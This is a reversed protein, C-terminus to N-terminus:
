DQVARANIDVNTQLTEGELSPFTAGCVIDNIKWLTTKYVFGTPKTHGVIGQNFWPQLIDDKFTEQFKKVNTDTIIGFTGTVPNATGGFMDKFINLFLQLKMVEMPDNEAGMQMYDVLFPCTDTSAGLVLPAPAPTALRTRTGSSGSSRRTPTSTEEIIEDEQNLFDCEYDAIYIESVRTTQQLDDYVYPTTDFFCQAGSQDTNVADGNQFIATQTWGSRDEETISWEGAPLNFEYYGTEDTIAYVPVYEDEIETATITWGGLGEEGEDLVGNGNLDNYKFGSITETEPEPEATNLLTFTRTARLNPAPADERPNVVLCYDGNAWTSMDVTTEFLGTTPNFSSPNNPTPSAPANGVVDTGNCSGARIAWFVEDVDDDADQYDALFQFTGSLELGNTAPNTIELSGEFAPETTVECAVPSEIDLRYLVGAPNSRDNSGDVGKNNVKITFTNEGDVLLSLIDYEKLALDAYNNLDSRDIVETGNVTFIYGNDAAIEIVASVAGNVTFTESFTYTEDEEPNEVRDTAWVWTADDINDTWNNHVYTEVAFENTEVVLTQTDSFISCTQPPLEKPVNWAVCHYTEGDKPSDIRDYNDYNLGDKHCYLEASDKDNNNAGGVFPIYDAPLVERMWFSKSNVAALPVNTSGVFTTWDSGASGVFDDGPNATSSDAWEFEWDPVIRCTTDKGQEALWDAATNATVTPISGSWDPLEEEYDCVIKTTNITVSPVSAITNLMALTRTKGKQVNIVGDTDDDDNQSGDITFEAFDALEDPTETFFDHYLPTAWIANGAVVVEETYKYQGTKDLEVVECYADLDTGNDNVLDTNAVLPTTFTFTEDYGGPGTVDVSFEGATGAGNSINGQEDVIMKCVRMMAKPEEVLCLQADDLYTGFSNSPGLDAFAIDASNSDAKFTIASRTWDTTLLGEPDTQPGETAVSTGNVLIDMQNQTDGGANHRGAFAWSLEYTAGTQLGAVSQTVKTSHDGDLEAYQNGEAAENGFLDEQLELTTLTNDSMKTVTWGPVTGFKQWKSSNTVEPEEFSGNTLLNQDIDLCQSVPVPKPCRDKNSAKRPSYDTGDFSYNLITTGDSTVETTDFFTYDAGDTAGAFKIVGQGAAAVEVTGTDATGVVEYTATIPFPNTNRVRFRMSDDSATCIATLQLPEFEAETKLFYTRAVKGQPAVLATEVSLAAVEPIDFVDYQDDIDNVTIMPGANINDTFIHPVPAVEGHESTNSINLVSPTTVGSGPAVNIGHWINGETSFDSADVTSGNVVMGSRFNKSTVNEVTIGESEYVNLGHLGLRWRDGEDVSSGAGIASAVSSPITTVDISAQLAFALAGDLTIDKVTVNNTGIIGIAANNDNSTKYFEANVAYGNGDLTIEKTINIQAGITEDASMVIVDGNDTDADDIAEQVTPFTEGTDINEVPGAPVVPTYDIASSQGVGKIEGETSSTWTVTHVVDNNEDRLTMTDGADNWVTNGGADIQADCAAPVTNDGCIVYNETTLLSVGPAITHKLGIDDSITWGELNLTGTGTFKINVAETNGAGPQPTVFVAVQGVADTNAANAVFFAVPLASLLLSLITVGAFLRASFGNNALNIINM